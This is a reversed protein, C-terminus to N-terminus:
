QAGWENAGGEHSIVAPHVFNVKKTWFVLIRPGRIVTRSDGHRSNAHRNSDGCILVVLWDGNKFPNPV